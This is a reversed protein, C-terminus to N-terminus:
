LFGSLAYLGCGAPLYVWYDRPMFGWWTHWSVHRPNFKRMGFAPNFAFWLFDEVVWFLLTFGLLRAEMAWSPAVLGFVYGSHLILFMFPFIYCHYGTLPRRTLLKDTLRSRFRWTPLGEAWGRPGEIQVEVMAFLWASVLLFLFFVAHIM